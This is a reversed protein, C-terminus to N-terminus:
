WGRRLFQLLLRREGGGEAARRWCSLLISSTSSTTATTAPVFNDDSKNSEFGRWRKKLRAPTLRFVADAGSYSDPSSDLGGTSISYSGWVM